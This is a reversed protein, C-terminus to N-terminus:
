AKSRRRWSRVLRYPQKPLKTMGCSTFRAKSLLRPKRRTGWDSISKDQAGAVQLRASPSDGEQEAYREFFALAKLLFERQLPEMQPEDALWKEAVQVYMDNTADWAWQLNEEARQREASEAYYAKSLLTAATTLGITTLLLVVASSTVLASHRRSWRAARQARTPPTARIPQDACFRSLDDALERATAYRDDPNKSIAKHIITELEVPISPKLRRLPQPEEFAIQRLVEERDAGNFAPQLALLEYLTIGLSYVDTRHDVTIRKALAQEPSMYRLTGVLDGTMTMGADTPLRALGFDTIFLKPTYDDREAHHSMSAADRPALHSCEVLLNAPKIDRHVVGLQHAHDLAEAAQIGLEAIRRYYDRPKSERLTSLAAAVTDKSHESKDSSQIEKRETRGDASTKRAVDNSFSLSSSDDCEMCTASDRRDFIRRPSSESERRPSVRGRAEQDRGGSWQVRLGDVVAALTQGEIFQMAYFHVGRECGVSYVPVINPHNLTAAARAENKFRQLQREDLMTAFPLVKIAVRRGLSIQEAEYVVGMGGRGIERLIRFDGLTRNEPQADIPTGRERGEGPPLPLAASSYGLDFLVQMTPVIERLRDACAPREAVFADLDVPQGEQLLRTLEAIADAASQDVSAPAELTLPQTNM